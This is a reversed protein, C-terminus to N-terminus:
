WQCMLKIKRTKTKMMQQIQRQTEMVKNHLLAPMEEVDQKQNENELYAETSEIDQNILKIDDELDLKMKQINREITLKQSNGECKSDKVNKSGQKKQKVVPVNTKNKKNKDEDNTSNPMTYFMDGNTRIYNYQDRPKTDFKQNKEKCNKM